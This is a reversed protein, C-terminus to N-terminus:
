VCAMRFFKELNFLYEDPNEAIKSKTQEYSEPTELLERVLSRAVPLETLKSILEKRTSVLSGTEYYVINRLYFYADEM